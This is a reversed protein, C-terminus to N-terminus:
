AQRIAMVEYSCNFDEPGGSGSLWSIFDRDRDWSEQITLLFEAPRTRRAGVGGSWHATFTGEYVDDYTTTGGVSFLGSDLGGRLDITPLPRFLSVRTGSEGGGGVVRVEGGDVGERVRVTISFPYDLFRARACDPTVEGGPADVSNAMGYTAVYTTISSGPPNTSSSSSPTPAAQGSADYQVTCTNGAGTTTLTGSVTWPTPPDNTMLEGQFRYTVVLGPAGPPENTVEADISGDPNVDFVLGAFGSAAASPLTITRRGESGGVQITTAASPADFCGAGPVSTGTLSVVPGPPATTTTADPNTANPDSDTPTDAAPGAPDVASTSGGAGGSTTAAPDEAADLLVSPDFPTDVTGTTGIPRVVGTGTPDALVLKSVPQGTPAVTTVAHANFGSWSTGTYKADKTSPAATLPNGGDWRVVPEGRDDVLVATGAQLVAPVSTVKGNKFGHNTVATDTRLIVPTLRAAYTGIDGPDIGLVGAWAKAEAPNAELFQILTAPVDVSNDGAGYLGPIKASYARAEVNAPPTEATEDIDVSKMFSDPTPTDVGERQFTAAGASSMCAPLVLLGVTLAATVVALLPRGRRQTPRTTSCNEM